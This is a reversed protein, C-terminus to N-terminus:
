SPDSSTSQRLWVDNQPFPIEIKYNLFSENIAFRLDSKIQHETMFEKSWYFLEFQLASDGFDQFWVFPAPNRLVKSHKEVVELLVRKVLRADTGYAVGVKIGYRMKDDNHSWNITSETVLKSNPIVMVSNERTIIKSTRLGIKYVSGIIGGINVVDGVEVSGEFLLILGSALDNFTQQLGLGVGVALAAAGGWVVTLHIGLSQIAMLIAIVYMFYKLIQTIAFQSGIDIKRRKFLPPLIVKGIAWFLVRFILLIIIAYLLNILPFEYSTGSFFKWNLIKEFTNM